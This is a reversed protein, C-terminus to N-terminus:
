GGQFMQPIPCGPDATFPDGTTAFSLCRLGGRCPSKFLCQQCAEPGEFARLKRLLPSHQYIKMLSTSALNGVEIPLQRCPYVTKDPMRRRHLIQSHTLVLRKKQAEKHYERNFNKVLHLASSFSRATSFHNLIRAELSKKPLKEKSHEPNHVWLGEKEKILYENDILPGIAVQLIGEERKKLWAAFYPDLDGDLSIPIRKEEDIKKFLWTTALCIFIIFCLYFKLFDPGPLTLINM